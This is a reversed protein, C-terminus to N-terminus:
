FSGGGGGHSTGSSGTHTSSGSSSSEKQIKTKTVHRGVFRDYRGTIVLSNEELYDNASAKPSVSKLQGELIKIVVFAIILGIVAGIGLHKLNFGVNKEANDTPLGYFFKDGSDATSFTVEDIFTNFAESFEGDSLYPVIMEGISDIEGNDILDIVKGTTSIHYKNQEGVCVLLICGDNTDSYGYGNYDYYDDAYTEADKGDLTTTTLIVIDFKEEEATESLRNELSEKETEDLLNANDILLPKDGNQAFAFINVTILLSFVILFVSLVKKM